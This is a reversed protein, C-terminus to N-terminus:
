VGQGLKKKMIIAAIIILGNFITFGAVIGNKVPQLVNPRSEGGHGASEHEGASSKESVAASGHQDHSETSSSKTNTAASEHQDHSETSSAKPAAPGSGHSDHNQGTTSELAATPTGTQGTQGSGQMDMTNHSSGSPNNMNQGDAPTSVAQKQSSPAAGGGHGDHSTEAYLVAQFLALLLIVMMAVFRLHKM